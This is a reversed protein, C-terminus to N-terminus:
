NLRIGAVDIEISRLDREVVDVHQAPADAVYDLFAPQERV